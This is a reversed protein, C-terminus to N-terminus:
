INNVAKIVATLDLVDVVQEFRKVKVLQRQEVQPTYDMKAKFKSPDEPCPILDVQKWERGTLGVEERTETILIKFAM